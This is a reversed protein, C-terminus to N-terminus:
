RRLPTPALTIADLACNNNSPTDGNIFSLTTKTDAATFSTTFKQWVQKTSGQGLSNVASILLTSSNYVNVTTTPGFGGSPDYVNGVWFTLTYSTGPTTLVTQAVGTATNSSGTLDLWAKGSKADFTFGNQMFTTSVTGVNGAASVVTWPGIKQGTGYLIYTGVPTPPKEFGGDKILNAANAVSAALVAFTFGLASTWNRM